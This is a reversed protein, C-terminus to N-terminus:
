GSAMRLVDRMVERAPRIRNTLIDLAFRPPGSRRCEAALLEEALGQSHKTSMLALLRVTSARVSPEDNETVLQRLDAEIEPDRRLRAQFADVADGPFDWPDLASRTVFRALADAVQQRTGQASVLWLHACVLLGRGRQRGVLNRHERVVVEHDPWRSALGVLAGGVSQPSECSAILAAVASSDDAFNTGVYKSAAVVTQAAELPSSQHMNFNATLVRKCCELLLSSGPRLRSLAVLAPAALVVAEDECYELFRTRLLSSRGVYPAVVGWFAHDEYRGSLRRIPSGKTADELEEWREAALELVPAYERAWTVLDIRLADENREEKAAAFVDIRGLALLGGFAATRRRDHDPGVAHLQARLVETRARSEGPTALAAHSLGITAQVMAHDDTELECQKLARRLAEDDFRQSARRAIYRRFVKSLPAARQLILPAIEADAAYVGAMTALPALPGQLREMALARVRPDTHFRAILTKEGSFVAPAKRVHPMIASVAVSADIEKGLAGFGRIVLDTRSVEPLDCVEMLLRFSEDVSGVIAPIHHAIHQREEAPIGALAELATAVEPDEIGWGKLLSWVRWSRYHRSETLQHLMVKKAADTRLMAALRAAYFDLGALKDGELWAETSTRVNAHESLIPELLSNERLAWKFPFSQSTELEQQIWRPVRADERHLRMLISRANDHYIDYKPPYRRHVVAWCADHLEHDNAWHAVLADMVEALLNGPFFSWGTDLARLLSDRGRDSRRGRRYFALAAVARLRASPSQEAERLWDDLGDISPWGRSLADLAAATVRPNVSEHTLAILQSGVKPCGEFARALSSSAAFRNGDGHLVLQLTRALEKTPSWQGLQAYLERQWQTVGPWWRGLRAVIAEGIPGARPGDLALGLLELGEADDTGVEIRSLSDLAAQRGVPGSVSATAFAGDALLLLRDTSNPEGEREGQIAELIREVDARRRQSQLLALIAGRWRPEGAQGSVFEVQEELTRTALQLGALHERFAAHCFALEEPGREVLLGSTDADVDTLERAGLRAQEGSWGPGSDSDALFSEIVRRADGREIGADAGRVQVEFALKGLAENRVDDTSFVRTRPKVEAAATARRNPHVELLVEILKQFLQFRTNPLIIQRAAVSLLGHLLLPNGALSQLRGNNELQQFFQKVRLEVPTAAGGEESLLKTAFERQQRPHLEVLRATNWYGSMPGLRRLGAPRTTAITFVDHTRVFTEITALTTRAAQEDNYEDLGDILLVLRKDSLAEVFSQELENPPVLARFAERTVEELGVERQRRATLRSWLAFPILLPIRAGLREQVTPFLEPAGVLDLALCRLVTSKGSGPAGALMLARDGQLLWDDFALSPTVSPESPRRRIGAPRPSDRSDDFQWSYDDFQWAYDDEGPVEAPRDAPELWPEDFPNTPDVHPVVFRKRIDRAVMQRPDVNLGPDLQQARAEYIEGLRKRLAIVHQVELPRKLSTAADEGAFAVLWNRGFFDDVIELHSRLKESLQIGNVGEFVIGKQLLRTAQEEITDQLATDALSARVCYVFRKASSRWKGKLFDEVAKEIDSPGVNKRNKAQWCIHGGGALRGYVDIGDQAQGPRGYPACYEVDANQSALRFVLREFDQWSLQDYPLQAVRTEVPPAEVVSEPLEQLYVPVTPAKSPTTLDQM